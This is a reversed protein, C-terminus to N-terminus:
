LIDKGFIKMYLIAYNEIFSSFFNKLKVFTSFYQCIFIKKVFDNKNHFDM